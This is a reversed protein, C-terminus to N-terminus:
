KIIFNIIFIYYFRNMFLIYFRYFEEFVLLKSKSNFKSIEKCKEYYIKFNDPIKSEAM